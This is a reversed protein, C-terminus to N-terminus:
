AWGRAVLAGGVLEILGAALVIGTMAGPPLGGAAALLLKQTGHCAFLSGALIRTAGVARPASTRLREIAAM